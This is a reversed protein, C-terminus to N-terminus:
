CFRLVVPSSSLLVPSGGSVLRGLLLQTRSRTVTAPAREVRRWLARARPTILKSRAVCPLTQGPILGAAVWWLTLTQGPILGACPLTQGPILGAAVWWLTLTQGPILGAAVWWLTLTQGPILGAALTEMWELPFM